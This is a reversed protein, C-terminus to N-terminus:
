GGYTFKIKTSSNPNLQWIELATLRDKCGDIRLAEIHQKIEQNKVTMFIYWAGNKETKMYMDFNKELVSFNRKSIALIVDNVYRNNKSSYETSSKIPYTTNFVVGKGKQFEFTGSSVLVRKGIFKEQKFNGSVSKFEPLNKEIQSVPTKQAQMDANVPLVVILTILIGFIFKYM